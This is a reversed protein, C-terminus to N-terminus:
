LDSLVGEPLAARFRLGVTGKHQDPPTPCHTPVFLLLVWSRDELLETWPFPCGCHLPSTTYSGLLPASLARLHPVLCAKPTPRQTQLVAHGTQTKSNSYFSM